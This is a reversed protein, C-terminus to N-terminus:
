CIENIFANYEIIMSNIGNKPNPCIVSLIDFSPKTPQHDNLPFALSSLM